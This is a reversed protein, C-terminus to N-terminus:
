TDVKTDSDIIETLMKMLANLGSLQNEDIADRDYLVHAFDVLRVSVAQPITPEGEYVLLVSTSFFHYSTQVELWAKLNQLEKLAAGYVARAFAGDYGKEASPNSSVFRKLAEPVEEPKMYKCWARSAKWLEGKKAEYVQMGSVRFGLAESTTEKDKLKCKEVYKPGAEIYSTRAGMKVDIINPRQFGHTLDEMVAHRLDM